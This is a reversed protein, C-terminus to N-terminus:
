HALCALWRIQLNRNWRFARRKICEAMLAAFPLYGATMPISIFFAGITGDQMPEGWPYNKMGHPYRKKQEVKKKKKKFVTQAADAQQPNFSLDSAIFGGLVLCVMLLRM